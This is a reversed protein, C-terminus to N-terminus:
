KSFMIDSLASKADLVTQYMEKSISHGVEKALTSLLREEYNVIGHYYDANNDCILATRVFQACLPIDEGYEEIPYGTGDYNKHHWYAIDACYQLFLHEKRDRSFLDRGLSTHEFYISRNPEDQKEGGEIIADPLGMLGIDYFTAALGILRADEEDLGKEKHNEVYTKALVTTIKQIRKYRDVPFVKRSKCLVTMQQLWDKAAREADEVYLPDSSLLITNRDEIDFEKDKEAWVSKVKECVRERVSSPDVPKALFDCAGQHIGALVYDEKADTTILFVPLDSIAKKKKIDALVLLGAGKKGLCIDLLVAAIKEYNQTIFAMAEKGNSVCKVKFIDQFIVRLVALDLESDDVILLINREM